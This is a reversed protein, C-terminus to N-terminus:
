DNVGSEYLQGDLIWKYKGLLFVSLQFDPFFNGEFDTAFKSNAFIQIRFKAIKKVSYNKCKLFVIWENM